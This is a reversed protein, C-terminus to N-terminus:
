LFNDLYHTNIYEQMIKNVYKHRAVTSIFANFMSLLPFDVALLVMRLELSPVVRREKVAAM